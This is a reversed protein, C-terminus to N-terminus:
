WKGPDTGAKLAEVTSRVEQVSAPGTLNVDIGPNALPFHLAAALVSSDKIDLGHERVGALPSANIVGVRRERALEIVERATQRFPTFDSYTLITDFDGHKAATELLPHWRTALGFFRITGQKKAERLVELVGGEPLVLDLSDVDHIQFLDLRDTKLRRLSEALSRRTHQSAEPLSVGPKLNFKTALFISERPVSAVFEGAVFESDGYYPATDYYRFGLQYATELTLLDDELRDRYDRGRGLWACGIGYPIRRGNDSFMYPQVAEKFTTPQPPINQM